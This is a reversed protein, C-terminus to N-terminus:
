KDTLKIEKLIPMLINELRILAELMQDQLESWHGKNEIGKSSIVYRIYSNGRDWQLNHGFAAEIEKKKNSLADFIKKSKDNYIFLSVNSEKQTVKCIFTVGKEYLYLNQNKPSSVSKLLPTKQKGKELFEMWFEKHQSPYINSILGIISWCVLIGALGSAVIAVWTNNSIAYIIVGVVLFAISGMLSGEFVAVIHRSLTGASVKAVRIVIISMGIYFPVFCLLNFTSLVTTSFSLLVLSVGITGFCGLGGVNDSNYFRNGFLGNIVGLVSCAIIFSYASIPNISTQDNYLLWILWAILPVFLLISILWNSRTQLRMVGKSDLQAIRSEFAESNVMWWMQNPHNKNEDSSNKVSEEPLTSKPSKDVPIESKTTKKNPQQKNSIDSQKKNEAAGISTVSNPKEPKGDSQQKDSTKLQQIADIDIGTVTYHLHRTAEKYDPNINIVQVLLGQATKNDKQELATLADKYLSALHTQQELRTLLETWNQKNPYISALQQGVEFAQRYKEEAELKRVEKLKKEIDQQQILHEMETVKDKLNANKYAELAVPLDDKKLAADGQKKWIARIQTLADRQNPDIELVREYLDLKKTRSRSTKALSLLAQVLRPRAVVPYNEYLREM